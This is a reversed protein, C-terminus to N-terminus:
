KKVFNIFLTYKKEEILKTAKAVIEQIRDTM